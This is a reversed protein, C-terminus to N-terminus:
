YVEPETPGDRPGTIPPRTVVESDRTIVGARHRRGPSDYLPCVSGASGNAQRQAARANIEGHAGCPRAVVRAVVRTPAFQGVGAM